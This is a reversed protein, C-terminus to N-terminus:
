PKNKCEMNAVLEVQTMVEFTKVNSENCAILWIIFKYFNTLWRKFNNMTHKTRINTFNINRNNKWKWLKTQCKPCQWPQYTLFVKLFNPQWRLYFTKLSKCNNELNNYPIGGRLSQCGRERSSWHMVLYM